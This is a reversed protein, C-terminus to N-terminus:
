KAVVINLAISIVWPLPCAIPVPVPYCSAFADYPPSAAPLLVWNRKAHLKAFAAKVIGATCECDKRLLTSTVALRVSPRAEVLEQGHLCRERTIWV